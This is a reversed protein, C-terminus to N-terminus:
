QVEEWNSADDRSGSGKYHMMKGDPTNAYDPQGGGSGSGSGSGGYSKAAKAAGEQRQKVSDAHAKQAAELNTRLNKEEGQLNALTERADNYTAQWQPTSQSSSPQGALMALNRRQDDQSRRNEALESKASNVASLSETVGKDAQTDAERTRADTRGEEQIRTEEDRRKTMSQIEQIHWQDMNAERALQASQYPTMAGYGILGGKALETAARYIQGGNANPNVRRAMQIFQPLTMQQQGGAGGMRQSADFPAPQSQAPQLQPQSGSQPPQAQAGPSGAAAAQQGGGFLNSLPNATGPQGPDAGPVPAQSVPQAGAGASLGGMMPQAMPAASAQQGGGFLSSLGSLLGGGSTPQGGSYAQMINGALNQAQQQQLYQNLAV